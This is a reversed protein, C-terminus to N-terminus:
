IGSQVQKQQSGESAARHRGDASESVRGTLFHQLQTETFGAHLTLHVFKHAKLLVKSIYKIMYTKGCGTEGMCIVPIRLRARQIILAIKMYNDLTIEYGKGEFGRTEFLLDEFKVAKRNVFCMLRYMLSDGSLNAIKRRTKPPETIKVEIHSPEECHLDDERFKPNRVRYLGKASDNDFEQAFFEIRSVLQHIPDSQRKDPSQKASFYCSKRLLLLFSPNKDEWRELGGMQTKLQDAMRQQLSVEELDDIEQGIKLASNQSVIM